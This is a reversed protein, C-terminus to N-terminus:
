PKQPAPTNHQRADTTRPRVHSWPCTVRPICGCNLGVICPSGGVPQVPITGGGGDTPTPAVGSLASQARNPSEGAGVQGGSLGLVVAFILAAGGCVGAALRGKRNTM